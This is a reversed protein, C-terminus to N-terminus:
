LEHVLYRVTKGRGALMASGVRRFRMKEHFGQSAENPPIENVEACIRQRGAQRAAEFLDLYLAQAVGRGRARAAVIVRDVYVFQDFRSRFWQFNTGDHVARHDIAILFGDMAGAIRAHCAIGLLAQLGDEDLASTELAHAQNLALAAALDDARFDRLV